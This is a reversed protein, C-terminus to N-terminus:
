KMMGSAKKNTKRKRDKKYLEYKATRLEDERIELSKARLEEPKKRVKGKRRMKRM